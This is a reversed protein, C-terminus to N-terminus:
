ADGRFVALLFHCLAVALFRACVVDQESRLLHVVVRQDVKDLFRRGEAAAGVAAQAFFPARKGLRLSFYGLRCVHCRLGCLFGSM